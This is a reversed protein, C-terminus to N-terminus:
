PLGMITQLLPLAESDVYYERVGKDSVRWDILRALRDGTATQANRTIPSLIGSLHQADYGIHKSLEAYSTKGGRGVLFKVVKAQEGYLMGWLRKVSQESWRRSQPKPGNASTAQMPAPSQAAILQGHKEVFKEATQVLEEYEGEFTLSTGDTLPIHLKM